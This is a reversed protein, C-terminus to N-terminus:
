ILRTFLVDDGLSTDLLYRKAKPSIKRYEQNEAGSFGVSESTAGISVSHSSGAYSLDINPNEDNYQVQYAVALKLNIPATSVDYDKINFCYQKILESAENIKIVDTETYSSGLIENLEDVTIYATREM